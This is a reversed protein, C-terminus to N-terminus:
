VENWRVKGSQNGAVKVHSSRRKGRAGNGEDSGRIAVDSKLVGFGRRHLGHLDVNGLVNDVLEEFVGPASLLWLYDKSASRYTHV